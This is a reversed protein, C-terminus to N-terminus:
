QVATVNDGVVRVGSDGGELRLPGDLEDVPAGSAELETDAVLWGVLDGVAVKGLNVTGHVNKWREM